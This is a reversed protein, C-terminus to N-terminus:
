TSANARRAVSGRASIGLFSPDRLRRRRRLGTLKDASDSRSLRNEAGHRRSHSIRSVKTSSTDPPNSYKYPEALENQSPQVRPRERKASARTFFRSLVSNLQQILRIRFTFAHRLRGRQFAERWRGGRRQLSATFSIRLSHQRFPTDGPSRCHLASSAAVTTLTLRFRFVPFEQRKAAAPLM